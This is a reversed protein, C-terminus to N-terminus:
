PRKLSRIEDLIRNAFEHHNENGRMVMPAGIRVRVKSFWPFFGFLKRHWPQTGIIAMPVVPVNAKDAMFAIGAQAPATEGPAVRMGEPFICVCEGMELRRIAERLVRRNGAGRAVPICGVGRFWYKLIPAHFLEEKAMFTVPRGCASGAAPPDLYSVHNPALIVGGKKPINEEGLVTFAYFTKLFIKLLGRSFLYPLSSM